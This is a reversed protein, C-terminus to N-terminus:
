GAALKEVMVDALRDYFLFDRAGIRLQPTGGLQKKFRSIGEYLHGPRGFPDYGYLDYESCGRDRARRTAELHLLYNPMKHRHESRSGGYLYTARRGFYVIFVAALVGEDSRAFLIEAMDNAFLTEGLNLFFSLPEAFFRNRLSTERVLEFFQPVSALSQSAQITVGARQAVRINYRGKPKMQALLENESLTLDLFLTHDPVLDVAGGGWNRFYAPAPQLLNPQVRLGLALPYQDCVYACLKRLAFKALADDTWDIVPGEPCSVVEREENGFTFLNAFGLFDSGEFLGARHVNYGEAKKFEAWGRSQMFGSHRSEAAMADCARKLNEPLPRWEM